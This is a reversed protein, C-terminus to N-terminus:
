KDQLLERRHSVRSPLDFGWTAHDIRFQEKCRTKFRGKLDMVTAFDSEWVAVYAELATRSEYPRWVCLHHVDEVSPVVKLEAVLGDNGFDKPVSDMLVGIAERIETYAHRLIYAAILARIIPDLWTIDWIMIAIASVSVGVMGPRAYGFTRRRDAKRPSIWRVIYSMPISGADSVNHAAEAQLARSGSIASGAFEAATIGFKLAILLCHGRQPSRDDKGTSDGDSHSHGQRM